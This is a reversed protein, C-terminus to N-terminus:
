DKPNQKMLEQKIARDLKECAYRFAIRPMTLQHKRLYDIVLESQSQSVIKLMWGYGKQVLYHDDFMLLDAIVLPNSPIIKQQKIPIILVVVAARRIAFHEHTTWKKVQEFLSPYQLILEGFAHTCFDDCDHWDTVYNTLWSEFVDFTQVDYQKRVRYAWDFAIVKHAWKHQQLLQDCWTLVEEISHSPLQKFQQASVQRIMKTTVPHNLYCSELSDNVQKLISMSKRNQRSKM